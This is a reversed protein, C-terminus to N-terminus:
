HGSSLMVLKLNKPAVSTREASRAVGAKVGAKAHSAVESGAAAAAWSGVKEM